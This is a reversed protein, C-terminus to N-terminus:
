PMAVNVLPPGITRLTQRPLSRPTLPPSRAIGSDRKVMKKSTVLSPIRVIDPVEFLSGTGHMVSTTSRRITESGSRCSTRAGTGEAATKGAPLRHAGCYGEGHVKAGSSAADAHCRAALTFRRGLAGAQVDTRSAALHIPTRTDFAFRSGNMASLLLCLGASVPWCRTQFVGQNERRRELSM